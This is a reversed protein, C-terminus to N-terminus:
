DECCLYKIEMKSILFSLTLSSFVELIYIHWLWNVFMLRCALGQEHQDWRVMSGFSLSCLQARVDWCPKLLCTFAYCSAPIHMQVWFVTRFILCPLYAKPSLIYVSLPFLCPSYIFTPVFKVRSHSQYGEGKCLSCPSVCTQIRQHACRRAVHLELQPLSSSSSQGLPLPILLIWSYNGDM